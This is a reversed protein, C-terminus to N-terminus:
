DDRLRPDFLGRKRHDIDVGMEEDLPLVIRFQEFAIDLHHIAVPDGHTDREISRKSWLELSMRSVQPGSIRVTKRNKRVDIKTAFAIQVLWRTPSAILGAKDEIGDLRKARLDFSPPDTAQFEELVKPQTPLICVTSQDLDVIRAPIRNPFAASLKPNRDQHMRSVRAREKSRQIIGILSDSLKLGPRFPSKRARLERAALAQVLSAIPDDRFM